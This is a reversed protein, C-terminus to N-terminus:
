EIYGLAKLRRGVEEEEAASMGGDASPELAPSARRLDELMRHLREVVDPRDAAVNRTEGPDARLDYLERPLRENHPAYVYKWGSTRIGVLWDKEDGRTVGCAEIYAPLEPVSEGRVRPM